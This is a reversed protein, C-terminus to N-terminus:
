FHPKYNYFFNIIMYKELNEMKLSQRRDNLVQKYISFSREVDVSTIPAFKYIHIPVNTDVEQVEMGLLVESFKALTHFGQNKDLIDKLKNNVIIGVSGQVELTKKSFNNIIKVSEALPMYRKELNEISSPVYSFNAKIYSLQQGILTNKLIEKCEKIAASSSEPLESVFKQFNELNTAYYLAANLWTGWRTLVPEPPLPTDPFNEKFGQVRLPAKVFIRKGNSILNNVLSFQLRITEAVRSLGHALCTCHILNEYFIKLVTGAKIMYAAGDTVLLAVKDAPVPNPLYLNALGDQIFRAITAHNTKSLEKCYVLYTQSPQDDNLIGVLLNAVYRGCSDTTEDVTLWIYHNGIQNKIKEFINIYCDDLYNKRISSESPLSRKCFTELFQKFQPNTLKHFPINASVMADCLAIAFQNQNSSGSAISEKYTQQQAKNLNKQHLATKM